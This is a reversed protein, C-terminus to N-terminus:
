LMNVGCPVNWSLTFIVHHVHLLFFRFLFCAKFVDSRTGLAYPLIAAREKGAKQLENFSFIVHM